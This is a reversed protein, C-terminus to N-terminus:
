PAAQFYRRLLADYGIPEPVGLDALVARTRTTDLLVGADLQPPEEADLFLAALPGLPCAAPDRDHLDQLRARWQPYPLEDLRLGAAHAGAVVAAHLRPPPRRPSTTPAPRPAAPSRSSRSPSTISPRGSRRSSRSFADAPPIARLRVCTQLLRHVADAPNM